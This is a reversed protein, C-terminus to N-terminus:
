EIYIRIYQMIDGLTIAEGKSFEITEPAHIRVKILGDDSKKDSENSCFVLDLQDKILYMLTHLNYRDVIYAMFISKNDKYTKGVRYKKPFGQYYHFPLDYILSEPIRLEIPANVIIEYNCFNWSLIIECGKYSIKIIPHTISGSSYQDVIIINKESYKIIEDPTCPNLSKRDIFINFINNGLFTYEDWYSKYYPKDTSPSNEELWTQFKRNIM